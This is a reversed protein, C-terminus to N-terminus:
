PVFELLSVLPVFESVEPELLEPDSEEVLESPDLLLTPFGLQLHHRITSDVEVLDEVFIMGVPGKALAPRGDNLFDVLSTYRMTQGNQENQTLM